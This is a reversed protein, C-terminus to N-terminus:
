VGESRAARKLDDLFSEPGFVIGKMENSLWLIWQRSEPVLLLDFHSMMMARLKGMGENSLEVDVPDFERNTSEMEYATVMTDGCGAAATSLASTWRNKMAVGGPIELSHWDDHSLSIGCRQELASLMAQAQAQDHTM